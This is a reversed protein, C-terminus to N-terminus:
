LTADEYEYEDDDEEEEEFDSLITYIDAYDFVTFFMVTLRKWASEMLEPIVDKKFYERYTGDYELILRELEIPIYKKFM